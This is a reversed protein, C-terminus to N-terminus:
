EITPIKIKSMERMLMTQQFTDIGPVGGGGVGLQGGTPAMGGGGAGGMDNIMGEVGKIDAPEDAGINDKVYGRYEEELEERRQALMNVPGLDEMYIIVRLEAAKGGRAGSALVSDVRHFADYIRVYSIRTKKIPFRVIEFLDVDCKGVCVDNENRPKHWLEIGLKQERIM